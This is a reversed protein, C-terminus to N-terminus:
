TINVPSNGNGDCYLFQNKVQETPPFSINDYFVRNRLKRVEVLSVPNKSFSDTPVFYQRLFGTESDIELLLSNHM